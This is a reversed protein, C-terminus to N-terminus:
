SYGLEKRIYTLFESGRYMDEFFISEGTEPIHIIVPTLFPQNPKFHERKAYSDHKKYAGLQVGHVIQQQGMWSKETSIHGAVHIHGGWVVDEGEWRESIHIGISHMPNFRSHGKYKHRALHTFSKGNPSILRVRIEDNDYIPGLGFDEFMKKTYDVGGMDKTWDMHNGSIAAVLKTSLIAVYHEMLRWSDTLTMVSKRRERELRGVIFNDLWDGIGVAFLSPHAAIFEADKFARELQTGRNDLHHDPIGVVGYPGPEAIKVDIIHKESIYRDYRKNYDIVRGLLDEIPEDFSTPITQITRTTGAAQKANHLALRSILTPAAKGEKAKRRIFGAKNRVTKVSLKLERAVDDLSPYKKTDNYINAFNSLTDADIKM